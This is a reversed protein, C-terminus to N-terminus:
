DLIVLRKTKAHNGAVIKAFYVGSSVKSGRSDKGDWTISYKGRPVEDNVFSKVQRGSVDYLILSVISSHPLQYYITTNRSFPKNQNIDFEFTKITDQEIGSSPSGVQVGYVGNSEFVYDRIMTTDTISDIAPFVAAIQQNSALSSVNADHFALQTTQNTSFWTGYGDQQWKLVVPSTIATDTWGTDVISVLSISNICPTGEGSFQLRFHPLVSYGTDEPMEILWESPESRMYAEGLPIWNGSTDEQAVCIMNNKQAPLTAQSIGTSMLLGAKSWVPFDFDVFIEQDPLPKLSSDTGPHPLVKELFDAELADYCAFPSFSFDYCYINGNASTVINTGEPHDVIHLKIQDLTSIELNRENLVIATYGQYYYPTYNLRLLDKKMTPNTLSHALVTNEPVFEFLGGSNGVCVYAEPCGPPPPPTGPAYVITDRGWFDEPQSAGEEKWKALVRYEVQQGNTYPGNDICSGVM